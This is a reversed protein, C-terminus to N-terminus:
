FCLHPLKQMAVFLADDVAAQRLHHRNDDIKMTCNTLVIGVCLCKTVSQNGNMQM